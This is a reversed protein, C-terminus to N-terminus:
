RYVAGYVWDSDIDVTDGGLTRRHAGLYQKSRHPGSWWAPLLWPLGRLNRRADWLGFWVSDPKAVPQGGMWIAAGVAAVGPTVSSYIGSRYGRAHLARTWADLFTLSSTRCRVNAGNYDELDYYIPTGRGM